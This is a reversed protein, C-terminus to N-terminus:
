SVTAYEHRISQWSTSRLVHLYYTHRLRKVRREARARRATAILRAVPARLGSGPASRPLSTTAGGGAPAATPPGGSPGPSPAAPTSSLFFKKACFHLRGFLLFRFGVPRVRGTLTRGTDVTWAFEAGACLACSEVKLLAKVLTEDGVQVTHWVCSVCRVCM